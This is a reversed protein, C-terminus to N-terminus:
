AEEGWKNWLTVAEENTLAVPGRAKCNWCGVYYRISEPIIFVDTFVEHGFAKCFPCKEPEIKVTM